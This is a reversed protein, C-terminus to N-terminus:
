AKESLNKQYIVKGVSKIHDRLAENDIHHFISLDIMYPLMLADLAEQVQYMHHLNLTKGQLTLDIDSGIKYNGKARSGYLIVAIIEPFQSFITSFKSYLQPDLGNM